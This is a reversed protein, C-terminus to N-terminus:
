ILMFNLLDCTKAFLIDRFMLLDKFAKILYHIKGLPLSTPKVEFRLESIHFNEQNGLDQFLNFLGQLEFNKFCHPM